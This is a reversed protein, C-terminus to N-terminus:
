LNSREQVKKEKTGRKLPSSGSAKAPEGKSAQIIEDDAKGRRKWGSATSRVKVSTRNEVGGPVIKLIARCKWAQSFYSSLNSALRGIM